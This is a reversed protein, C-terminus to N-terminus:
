VEGGRREYAAMAEGITECYTGSETVWVSSLPGDEPRLILTWVVYPHYDNHPLRFIAIGYAYSGDSAPGKGTFAVLPNGNVVLDAPPAPHGNSQNVFQAPGTNEIATAM